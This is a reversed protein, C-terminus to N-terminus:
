DYYDEEILLKTLEHNWDVKDFGESKKRSENEALANDMKKFDDETLVERKCQPCFKIEQMSYITVMCTICIAQFKKRDDM